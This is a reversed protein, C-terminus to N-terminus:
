DGSLILEHAAIFGQSTQTLVALAEHREPNHM